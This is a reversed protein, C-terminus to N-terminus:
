RCVRAGQRPPEGGIRRILDSSVAAGRRLAFEALAGLRLMPGAPSTTLAMADPHLFLGTANVTDIAVVGSLDGVDRGRGRVRAVADDYKAVRGSLEHAFTTALAAAVLRVRSRVDICSLAQDYAPVV